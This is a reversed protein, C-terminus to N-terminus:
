ATSARRRSATERLPAGAPPRAREVRDDTRTMRETGHDDRDDHDERQREAFRVTDTGLVPQSFRIFREAPKEVVVTKPQPRSSSMLSAAAAAAVKVDLAPPREHRM